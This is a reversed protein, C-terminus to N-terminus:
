AGRIRKVLEAKGADFDAALVRFGTDFGEDERVVDIGWKNGVFGLIFLKKKWRVNLMMAGTPYSEIDTTAGDFEARLEDALRALDEQLTTGDFWPRGPARM